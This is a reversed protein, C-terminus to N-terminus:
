FVNFPNIVELEFLMEELKTLALSAMEVSVLLLAVLASKDVALFVNFPYIVVLALLMEELKTLALSAMEVSVLM